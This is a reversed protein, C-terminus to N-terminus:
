VMLGYPGGQDAMYDEPGDGGPDESEFEMGCEYCIWGGGDLNRDGPRMTTSCRPCEVFNYRMTFGAPM